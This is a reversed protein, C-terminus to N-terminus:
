KKKVFALQQDNDVYEDPSVYVLKYHIPGKIIISKDSIMEWTAPGTREDNATKEADDDTVTMRLTGKKSNWDSAKDNKMETHVQYYFVDSGDKKTIVWKTGSSLNDLMKKWIPRPAKVSKKDQATSNSGPLGSFINTYKILVFILVIILVTAVSAIILLSM